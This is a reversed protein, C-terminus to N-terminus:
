ATSPSSIEISREGRAKRFEASDPSSMRWGLTPPQAPSGSGEGVRVCFMCPVRHEAIQRELEPGFMEFEDGRM